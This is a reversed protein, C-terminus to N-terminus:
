KECLNDIIKKFFTYTSTLKTNGIFFRSNEVVRGEMFKKLESFRKIAIDNPVITKYVYILTVINYSLTSKLNNRRSTKSISDISQIFKTIDSSTQKSNDIKSYIQNLICNNHAAANRLDRVINMSKNDVIDISYYDGYFSYLFILTGFSILEVFVWLPFYPYHKSVLDRCFLSKSTKRLETIYKLDREKSLFSQMIRYGDEDNIESVHSLIQTKIAREIDLCMGFIIHKLELDIESLEVLYGFDLNQYQGKRAGDECKSYNSRYAAVNMYYNHTKLYDIAEDECLVEFRIGRKKMDEILQTATLIKKM